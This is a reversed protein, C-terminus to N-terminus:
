ERWLFFFSLPDLEGLSDSVLSDVRSLWDFTERVREAAEPSVMVGFELRFPM